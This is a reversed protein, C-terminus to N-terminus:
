SRMLPQGPLASRVRRWHGARIDAESISASAVLRGSIASPRRRAQPPRKTIVSKGTVAEVYDALDRAMRGARASAPPEPTPRQSQAVAFMPIPLMAIALMVLQMRM